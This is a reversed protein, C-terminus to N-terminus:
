AVLGAAEPHELLPRCPSASAHSVQVLTPELLRAAVFIAAMVVLLGTAAAKMGAAGKQVANFRSLTLPATM